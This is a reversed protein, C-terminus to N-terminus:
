PEDAKIKGQKGLPIRRSASRRRLRNIPCTKGGQPSYINIMISPDHRNFEYCERDLKPFDLM